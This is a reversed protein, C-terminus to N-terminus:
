PKNHSVVLGRVANTHLPSFLYYKLLSFFYIYFKELMVVLLTMSRPSIKILLFHYCKWFKINKEVNLIYYDFLLVSCAIYFCVTIATMCITMNALFHTEPSYNTSTKQHFFIYIIYVFAFYLVSNSKKRKIIM